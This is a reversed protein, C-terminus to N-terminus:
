RKASVVFGGLALGISLLALANPEPVATISINDVYDLVVDWAYGRTVYLQFIHQGGSLQYTGDLADRTVNGGGSISGASWSSVTYSDVKLQFQGGDGNGFSPDSVDYTAAVDARFAYAGSIPATFSQQIYMGEQTGASAFVAAGVSCVMAYTGQSPVVPFTQISVGQAWSGQGTPYKSLGNPTYGVTWGALTGQEFDGNYILNANAKPTAAFALLVVLERWHRKM